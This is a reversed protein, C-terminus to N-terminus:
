QMSKKGVSRKLSDRVNKDQKYTLLDQKIKEDDDVVMMDDDDDPSDFHEKMKRRKNEDTPTTMLENLNEGTDVADLIGGRNRLDDIYLWVNFVIGVCALGSYYMMLWFYGDQKSTKLCQASVWPSITLGINQM